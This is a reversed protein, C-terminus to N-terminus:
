HSAMGDRGGGRGAAALLALLLMLSQSLGNSHCTCCCIRGPIGRTCLGYMVYMPHIWGWHRVGLWDIQGGPLGTSEIAQLRAHAM